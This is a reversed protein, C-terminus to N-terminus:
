VACFNHLELMGGTAHTVRAAAGQGQVVSGERAVLVSELSGPLVRWLMKIVRYQM